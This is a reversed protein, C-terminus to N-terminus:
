PLKTSAASTAIATKAVNKVRSIGNKSFASRSVRIFATARSRSSIRARSRARRLASCFLRPDSRWSLSLETRRM